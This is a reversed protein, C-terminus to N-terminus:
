NTQKDMLATRHSVDEDNNKYIEYFKNPITFCSKRHVYIKSQIEQLNEMSRPGLPTILEDLEELNKIDENLQKITELLWQLMPVVFAIRCLLTTVPENKVIGIAFILAVLSIIIISSWFRFRRRLGVDWNYNEKQCMLIGKNLDVTGAIATYWNVLNEREGVKQFLKQSKEAVIYTVDRQRGFLKNDWPMQYVYTDFYQQIEAALEKKRKICSSLCLSIVMSIISLIYSAVNLQNNDNVILQIGALILPLIVSFLLVITNSKKAENYLQRQAGLYNIYQDENQREVIGNGM